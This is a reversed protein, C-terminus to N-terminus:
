ERNFNVDGFTSKVSVNATGGKGVQGTYSKSFSYSRDDDGGVKKATINGGYNFGSHSTSVDFDANYNSGFGLRVNTYNSNVTLIKCGVEIEDIAIKNFQMKVTANGKLTGLKVNVYQADLNVNGLSGITLGKGFRQKITAAGKITGISVSVYQADLDVPGINTISIGDGFQHKITAQNVDKLITKGYKVSVYNNSNNLNGGILDGFEVKLSTPGSFDDMTINGYKQSLTLSISAPVYVTLNVKVERRWRKGNRSGNGWNQNDDPFTTKFIVEDGDKSSSINTQDLLKQADADTSAYSKLDGDVRIENKAWTKITISGFQNSLNLKDNRDISYSKSFTKSKMSDDGQDQKSNWSVSSNESKDSNLSVTTSGVGNLSNTSTTVKSPTLVVVKRGNISATSSTYSKSIVGVGNVSVSNPPTTQQANVQMALLLLGSISLILNKM